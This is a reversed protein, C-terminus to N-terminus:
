WFTDSASPLVAAIENSFVYLTPELTWIVFPLSVMDPEDRSPMLYMPIRVYDAQANTVLSPHVMAGAKFYNYLEIASLTAVSGGWCMGFIAFEEVGESQYHRVINILDPRIISNWDGM